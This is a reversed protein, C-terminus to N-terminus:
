PRVSNQKGNTVKREEEKKKEAEIKDAEMRNDEGGDKSVGDSDVPIMPGEDKAVYKEVDKQTPLESDLGQVGEAKDVGDVEKADINQITDEAKKVNLANEKLM